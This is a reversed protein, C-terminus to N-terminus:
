NSQKLDVQFFNGLQVFHDLFSSLVEQDWFQDWFLFTYLSKRKEIKPNSNISILEANFETYPWPFRFWKKLFIYTHYWSFYDFRFIRTLFKRFHVKHDVAAFSFFTPVLYKKYSTSLFQTFLIPKTLSLNELGKVQPGARRRPLIAWINCFTITNKGSFSSSIFGQNQCM